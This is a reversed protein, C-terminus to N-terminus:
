EFINEGFTQIKNASTRLKATLREAGLKSSSFHKMVDDWNQDNLWVSASKYRSHNM